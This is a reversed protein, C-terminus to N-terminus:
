IRALQEAYHFSVSAIYDSPELRDRWDGSNWLDAVAAVSTPVQAKIKASLVSVAIRFAASPALLLRPDDCLNADAATHYTVQLPGFSSCALCGWVRHRRLAVPHTLAWPRLHTNPCFASEHRPLALSGYSSEQSVLARLLALPSVDPSITPLQSAASFTWADIEESTISFPSPTM